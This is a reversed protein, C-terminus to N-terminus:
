GSPNIKAVFADNSGGANTPQLPNVTPFNTSNTSGTIYVNGASDVAISNGNDNGSGGLYTSYILPDIYLPRNADYKALEFGVRNTDKIAYRAAVLQRAGDKGQYAVPKRWRIEDEGMKLVLDGQVDQRIRKAGRIDFAIRRPDGGPAVIFDYELRRQNGYYVLDIGSYIGEYKVKAYTPVNTRWKAPDNGIF